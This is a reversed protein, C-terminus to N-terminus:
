QEGNNPEEENNDKAMQCKKEWYRTNIDRVREPNKARWQRQYENRAKRAEDTM